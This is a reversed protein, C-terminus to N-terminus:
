CNVVKVRVEREMTDHPFERSSDWPQLRHRCASENPELLTVCCGGLRESQVTDMSARCAFGSCFTRSSLFTEIFSYHLAQLIAM